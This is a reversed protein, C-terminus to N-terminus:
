LMELAEKLYGTVSLWFIQLVKLFIANMTWLESSFMKTKQIISPDSHHAPSHTSIPVLIIKWWDLCVNLLLYECQMIHEKTPLGRSLLDSTPSNLSRKCIVLTGLFLVVKLHVFLWLMFSLDNKRVRIIRHFGYVLLSVFQHLNPIHSFFFGVCFWREKM